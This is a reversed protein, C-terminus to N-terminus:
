WSRRLPDARSLSQRTPTAHPSRQFPGQHRHLDQRCRCRHPAVAQHRLIRRPPPALVSLGGRRGNHTLSPSLFVRLLLRLFALHNDACSLSSIYGHLMVIAYYHTDNQDEHAWKLVDCQFGHIM